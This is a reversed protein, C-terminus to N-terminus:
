LIHNFKHLWQHFHTINLHCFWFFGIALILLISLHSFFLSLPLCLVIDAVVSTIFTQLKKPKQSQIVSCIRFFGLIVVLSNPFNHPKFEFVM